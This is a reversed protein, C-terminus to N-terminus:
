LYRDLVWMNNYPINMYNIEENLHKCKDQLSSCGKSLHFQKHNVGCIWGAACLHNGGGRNSSPRYIIVSDDYNLASSFAIDECDLEHSCRTVKQQRSETIVDQAWHGPNCVLADSHLPERPFLIMHNYLHIVKISLVPFFFLYSDSGLWSTM